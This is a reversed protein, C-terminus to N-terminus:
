NQITEIEAKEKRLESVLGELISRDSSSKYSGFPPTRLKCDIVTCLHSEAYKKLSIQREAIEILITTQHKLTSIDKEQRDILRRQEDLREGMRGIKQYAEKLQDNLIALNGLAKEAVDVDKDKANLHEIRSRPKFYVLGWLVGILSTGGLLISIMNMWDM